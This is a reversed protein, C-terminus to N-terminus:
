WCICAGVDPINARCRMVYCQLNHLKNIAFTKHRHLNQRWMRILYEEQLSHTNDQVCCFLFMDFNFRSLSSRLFSLSVDTPIGLVSEVRLWRILPWIVPTCEMMVFWDEAPMRERMRWRAGPGWCESAWLCLIAGRIWNWLVLYLRRNLTTPTTVARKNTPLISYGAPASRRGSVALPGPPPSCDALHRRTTPPPPRPRSSPSGPAPSRRRFVKLLEIRGPLLQTGNLLFNRPAREDRGM